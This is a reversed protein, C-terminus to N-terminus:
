ESRERSQEDPITGRVQPAVPPVFGPRLVLQYLGGGLVGGAVPAIVYVTLSQWMDKRHEPTIVLSTTTLKVASGHESPSVVGEVCAAPDDLAGEGRLLRFQSGEIIVQASVIM